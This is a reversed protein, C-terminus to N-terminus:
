AAELAIGKMVLNADLIVDLQLTDYLFTADGGTLILQYNNPMASLGAGIFGKIANLRGNFVAAQTNDALGLPYSDTNAEINATGQFLSQQMLTWGPMIMGGLHMGNEDICDLTIATGCDVICLAGNYQNKAATMVLWRDVGLSKEKPYANTVGHKESPSQIFVLPTTPWLKALLNKLQLQIAAVCAIYVAEPQSLQSWQEQLRRLYDTDNYAITQTNGLVGFKFEAWKLCSNGSDILLKM